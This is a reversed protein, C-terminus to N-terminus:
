RAPWLPGNKPPPAGLLNHKGPLNRQRSGTVFNAISVPYRVSNVPGAMDLRLSLQTRLKIRSQLGMNHKGITDLLFVAHNACGRLTVSRLQM